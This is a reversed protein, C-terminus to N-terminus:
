RSMPPVKGDLGYGSSFYISYVFLWSMRHASLKGGLRYPVANEVLIVAHAHREDIAGTYDKFWTYYKMNKLMELPTDDFSPLKIM